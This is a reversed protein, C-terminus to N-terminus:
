RANTCPEEGDARAEIPIGGERVPRQVRGLAFQPPLARGPRFGPDLDNMSSDHAERM